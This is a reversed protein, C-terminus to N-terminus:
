PYEREESTEGDEAEDVVVAGDEVVDKSPRAVVLAHTEERPAEVPVKDAGVAQEVREPELDVLVDTDEEGVDEHRTDVVAVEPLRLREREHALSDKYTNTDSARTFELRVPEEPDFRYGTCGSQM